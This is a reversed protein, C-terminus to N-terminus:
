ASEDKKKGSKYQEIVEILREAKKKGEEKFRVALIDLESTKEAEEETKELLQVNNQCAFSVADEGMPLPKIEPYVRANLLLKLTINQRMILRAGGEPTVNFKIEGRGVTKWAGKVNLYLGAKECFVTEESEEGSTITDLPKFCSSDAASTSVPTDMNSPTDFM